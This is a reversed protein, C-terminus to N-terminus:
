VAAVLLFAPWIDRAPTALTNPELMFIAIAGLITTICSLASFAVGTTEVDSGATSLIAARCPSVSAVPARWM